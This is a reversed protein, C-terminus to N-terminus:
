IHRELEAVTQTILAIVRQFIEENFTFRTGAAAYLEPVTRTAGLSLAHRYQRLASQPERLYNHWIQLAGLAAFAYEIVYLPYCYFHLINQWGYGLETELGSWDIAPQYHQSLEAWKQNCQQPDTAQEPHDYVWHQFADGLIFEPLYNALMNELHQIRLLATEHETCLGAQQLYMAGIFEM